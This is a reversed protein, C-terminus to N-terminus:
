CESKTDIEEFKRMVFELWEIEAQSAQGAKAKDLVSQVENLLSLFEDLLLKQSPTPM